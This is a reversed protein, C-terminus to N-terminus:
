HLYGHQPAPVLLAPRDAVQEVAGTPSRQQELALRSRAPGGQDAVGVPVGSVPRDEGSGPEGVLRRQGVGPELAEEVRHAVPGPRKGDGLTTHQPTGQGAGAAGGALPQGQRHGHEPQEGDGGPFTWQQAGHVVDVESVPRGGRCQGEHRAAQAVQRDDDEEGSGDVGSGAPDGGASETGEVPVVAAGDEGVPQRHGGGVRDDGGEARDGGSVRLGEHVQGFGQSGGLAPSLFVQGGRWRGVAGQAPVVAGPQVPQRVVGPVQQQEGGEVGFQIRRRQDPGRTGGTRRDLREDRGLDGAQDADLRVAHRERSGQHPRHDHGRRGEGRAAGRVQHEGGQEVVTVVPEAPGQVEGGGGLVAIGGQRRFQLGRGAVIAVRVGARRCQVAGGFEADVRGAGGGSQHCGGVVGPRRAARVPGPQEGPM